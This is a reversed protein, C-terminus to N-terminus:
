SIGKSPYFYGGLSCIVQGSLLGNAVHNVIWQATQGSYIRIPSITRPQTISGKESLINEFNRVPRGDILLRWVIDGSFQVFGGFNVNNSVSKIVGDYGVPCFLSGVVTDGAAVPLNIGMQQDFPDSGSPEDIWPRKTVLNTGPSDMVLADIGKVNAQHLAALALMADQTDNFM